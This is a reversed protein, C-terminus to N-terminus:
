VYGVDEGPYYVLVDNGPDWGIGQPFMDAASSNSFSSLDPLALTAGFPSVVTRSWATSSGNFYPKIVLCVGSLGLLSVWCDTRNQDGTETDSVLTEGLAPVTGSPCFLGSYEESKDTSYSRTRSYQNNISVGGVNVAGGKVIQNSSTGSFEFTQGNASPYYNSVLSASSINEDRNTQTIYQIVDNNDYFVGVKAEVNDKITKNGSLSDEYWEDPAGNKVIGWDDNGFSITYCTALFPPDDMNSPSRSDVVEEEHLTSFTAITNSSVSIGQGISGPVLSGTGAITLEYVDSLRSGGPRTTSGAYKIFRYRDAYATGEIYRETYMLIKDCASNQLFQTLYYNNAALTGNDSPTLTTSFLEIDCSLDPAPKGYYLRGFVGKLRLVPSTTSGTSEIIWPTGAPDCYLFWRRSSIRQGSVHRGNRILYPLWQQGSATDHAQEAATRTPANAAGVSNYLAQADASPTFLFPDYTMTDGNPLTLTTERVFGHFPCGIANFKRLRM